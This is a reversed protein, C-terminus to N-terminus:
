TYEKSPCENNTCDGGLSFEVTSNSNSHAKEILLTKFGLSSATGAAFMGSAGAGIVVLDYDYRKKINFLPQIISLSPQTWAYITTSIPLLVLLILIYVLKSGFM